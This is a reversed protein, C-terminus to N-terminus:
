RGLPHGVGALVCGGFFYAEDGLFELKGGFLGLGEPRNVVLIGGSGLFGALCRALGALGESLLFTLRFYGFLFHYLPNVGIEVGDLGFTGYEFLVVLLEELHKGGFLDSLKVDGFNLIGLLHEAIQGLAAAVLVRFHFAFARFM